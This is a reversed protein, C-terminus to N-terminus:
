CWDEVYLGSVCRVIAVKLLASGEWKAGFDARPLPSACASNALFCWPLVWDCM